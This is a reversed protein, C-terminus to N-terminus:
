ASQVTAGHGLTQGVRERGPKAIQELVRLLLERLCGRRYHQREPDIAAFQCHQSHQSASDGQRLLLRGFPQADVPGRHDREDVRQLALSQDSRCRLGSSLRLFM